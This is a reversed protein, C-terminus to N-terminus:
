PMTLFNGCHNTSSWGRPWSSSAANSMYGAIIRDIKEMVQLGNRLYEKYQLSFGADSDAAAADFRRPIREEDAGFPECVHADQLVMVPQLAKSLLKALNYLDVAVSSCYCNLLECGLAALIQRTGISERYVRAFTRELVPWPAVECPMQRLMVILYEKDRRTEPLSRPALRLNRVIKAEGDHIEKLIEWLYQYIRRNVAKQLAALCLTPDDYGNSKHVYRALSELHGCTM